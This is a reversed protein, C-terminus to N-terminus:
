YKILQSPKVLYVQKMIKGAEPNGLIHLMKRVKLTNPRNLPGSGCVIYTDRVQHKTGEGKLLVLEGPQFSEKLAAQRATNKHNRLRMKHQEEIVQKDSIDLQKGSFQDRM